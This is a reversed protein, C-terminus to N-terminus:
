VAPLFDSARSPNACRASDPGKVFPSAQLQEATTCDLQRNTRENASPPLSKLWTIPTIQHDTLSRNFEPLDKEILTHVEKEAADLDKEIMQLLTISTETPGFGTGGAM